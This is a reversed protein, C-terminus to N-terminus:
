EYASLGHYAYAGADIRYKVALVKRAYEIDEMNVNKHTDWVSDGKKYTIIYAALEDKEKEHFINRELHKASEMQKAGILVNEKLDYPNLDEDDPTETSVQMLGVESGNKKDADFGSEVEMVSTILEMPIGTKSSAEQIAEFILAAREDDVGSNKIELLIADYKQKEIPEYFNSMEDEYRPAYQHSDLTFKGIVVGCVILTVAMVSMSAKYFAGNMKKAGKDRKKLM